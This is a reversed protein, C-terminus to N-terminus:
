QLGKEKGKNKKAVKKWQFLQNQLDDDGNKKM